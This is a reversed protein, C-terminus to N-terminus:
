RPVALARFDPKAKVTLSLRFEFKADRLSGPFQFKFAKILPALILKAEMTAFKQGICVRPGASFPIFAMPHKYPPSRDASLWREPLFSEPQDWYIPSRHLLQVPIVVISDSPVSVGGFVDPKATHRIMMGAPPYYRLTEKLFADLYAMKEVVDLRMAEGEVSEAYEMVDEYVKEQVDPYQCLAFLAWYIWTSTTEHGAVIFTKVEDRLEVDTLRRKEDGGTRADVLLELISKPEYKSASPGTSASPDAIRTRVIERVRQIIQDAAANMAIDSRRGAFDLFPMRFLYMLVRYASVRFVERMSAVLQDSVEPL